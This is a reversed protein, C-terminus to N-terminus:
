ASCKTSRYLQLLENWDKCCSIEPVISKLTSYRMCCKRGANDNDVALIVDKETGVLRDITEYNTVGGISVFAYKSCDKKHINKLLDYLSIADIAAECIFIKEVEDISTGEEVLYWYNNKCTKKVQRFPEKGNLFAKSLTGRQEFYDKEQNLFVINNTGKSQYILNRKLLQIIIKSDIARSSLYAILRAQRGEEKEPPYIIQEERENIVKNVVQKVVGSENIGSHSLLAEVADQFSYGLYRTLFDIADGTEDTAFDRYGMYGPAISISHNSKLRLSKGEITFLSIYNHHLFEYLNAQHAILIQNRTYHM